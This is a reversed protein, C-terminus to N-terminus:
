GEGECDGRVRVVVGCWARSGEGCLLVRDDGAWRPLGLPPTLPCVVDHHHSPSPVACLRIGIPLPLPLPLTVTAVTSHTCLEPLHLPTVHLHLMTVTYYLSTTDCHQLTVNHRLTAVHCQTLTAFRRQTLTAFHQTVTNCLSTTDCHQLAVSCMELYM